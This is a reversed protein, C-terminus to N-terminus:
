IVYPVFIFNNPKDSLEALQLYLKIWYVPCTSKGTSAIHMDNGRRYVDTKSSEIYVFMHMEYFSINRVRLNALNNYRLFGAFGILLMTCVRLCLFDRKCNDNGYKAIIQELFKQLFRSRRRSRSALFEREEKWLGIYLSLIVRIILVYM